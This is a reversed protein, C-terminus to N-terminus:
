ARRRAPGFARDVLVAVVVGAAYAVLDRPDWDSGLVLHGLTTARVADLAPAHVRQSLEVALCIALAMGGRTGSRAAPALVCTWWVIMAAWLMDGLVDRPAPGLAAGGRHVALGVVITGAALALYTLRARRM